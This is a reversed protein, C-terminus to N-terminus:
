SRGRSGARVESAAAAAAAAEERIRAEAAAAAAKAAEERRVREATAEVARAAEVTRVADALWAAKAAREAEAEQQMAALAAAARAVQEARERRVAAAAPSEIPVEPAEAELSDDTSTMQRARPVQGPAELADDTSTMQRARPGPVPAEPAHYPKPPAVASLGPVGATAPQAAPSSTISRRRVVGPTGHSGPLSAPAASRRLFTLVYPTEPSARMSASQPLRLPLPCCSFCAVQQAASCTMRVQLSGAVARNSPLAVWVYDGGLAVLEDGPLLIGECHGGEVVAAVTVGSLLVGFPRSTFAVDILVDRPGDPEGSAGVPIYPRGFHAAVIPDSNARRVIVGPREREPPPAPQSVAAAQATSPAPKPQTEPAIPATQGKSSAVDLAEESAAAPESPAQEVADEVLQVSSPQLPFVRRAAHPRLHVFSRVSVCECM